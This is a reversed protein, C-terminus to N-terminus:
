ENVAAKLGASAKFRVVKCAPVEVPSGDRPNKATRAARDKTVFSGFHPIKVTGETLVSQTLADQYAKIVRAAQAKPIGASEAVQTIIEAQTM